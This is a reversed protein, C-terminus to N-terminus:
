SLILMLENPTVVQVPSNKFGSQDRTVVADLQFLYACAIQVKDEYDNGALKSAYELTAKNVACVEFTALLLRVAELTREVGVLKRAVYFVDTVTTASVYATVKGRDRARWVDRASDAFPLRALLVDLIISTDLLVRM